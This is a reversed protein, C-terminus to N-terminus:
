TKFGLEDADLNRGAGLWAVMQQLAACAQLRAKDTGIQEAREVHQRMQQFVIPDMALLAEAGSAAWKVLVYRVLCPLPIGTAQSLNALTPLPDSRTFRSVEAKFNAHPDDDPWTADYTPLDISAEGRPKLPEVGSPAHHRPALRYPELLKRLQVSLRSFSYHGTKLWSDTAGVGTM